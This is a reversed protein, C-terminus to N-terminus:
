PLAAKERSPSILAPQVVLKDGQAVCRMVEASVREMGGLTAPDSVKLESTAIIREVKGKTDSDAYAVTVAKTGTPLTVKLRVGRESRALEVKPKPDRSKSNGIPLVQGESMSVAYGKPKSAPGRELCHDGYSYAQTGLWLQLHDQKDIAGKDSQWQDDEVNIVLETSSGAVVSLRADQPEGESGRLLYGGKGSADTQAACAGLSLEKWQHALFPEGLDLQPITTYQYPPEGDASPDPAGQADCPPSFWSTTGSLTTWDWRTESINPGLTWSGGSDSQELRMPSLRLTRESSWRWASGGIQLHRLVGSEVSIQDEGIGSAGYGDNCLELLLSASQEIFGQENSAILWHEIPECRPSDEDEPPQEEDDSSGEESARLSLAVVQLTNGEADAGADTSSTIKCRPRGNCLLGSLDARPVPVAIPKPGPESSESPTAVSVATASVPAPAASCAAVLALSTSAFLWSSPPRPLM